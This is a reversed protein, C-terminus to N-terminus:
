PESNPCPPTPSFRHSSPIGLHGKIPNSPSRPPRAVSPFSRRHHRRWSPPPLPRKPLPDTPTTTPLSSPPAGATKPAFPPAPLHRVRVRPPPPPTPRKARPPLRDSPARTDVLSPPASQRPRGLTSAWHHTAAVWHSPIPGALTSPSAPRPQASDPAPGSNLFFNKEFKL